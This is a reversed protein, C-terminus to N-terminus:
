DDTYLWFFLSGDLQAMRVTSYGTSIIYEINQNMHTYIEFRSRWFCYNWRFDIWLTWVIFGIQMWRDDREIFKILLHLKRIIQPTLSGHMWEYYLYITQVHLRFLRCNNNIRYIAKNKHNSENSFKNEYQIEISINM